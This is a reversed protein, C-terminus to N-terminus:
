ILSAWILIKLRDTVLQHLFPEEEKFSLLTKSSKEGQTRDHRKGLGELREHEEWTM